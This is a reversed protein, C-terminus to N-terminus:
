PKTTKILKFTRQEKGVQWTYWTDVKLREPKYYGDAFARIETEASTIVVEGYGSWVLAPIVLHESNDDPSILYVQEKQCSALVLLIFILKKM